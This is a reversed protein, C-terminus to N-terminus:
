VELPSIHKARHQKPVYIYGFNEKLLEEKFPSVDVKDLMLGSLIGAREIEGLFIAGRIRNDQLIIKKYANSTKSRVVIAETTGEDTVTDGFAILPLGFVEMSNMPIRGKYATDGGAMNTGAVTGQEYAIPWIPINKRGGALMAAETVDGAAYVDEVSTEMRPNVIIGVNTKIRTDRCLELRPKVGVAVVIISCPIEEGSELVVASVATGKRKIEVVRSSLVLRVGSRRINAAVIKGAEADLMSPLPRNALEVVTVKAGLAKLGEAAKIGIFGSGIVVAKQKKRVNKLLSDADALTTFTYVHPGDIGPIPPIVPEAGPTLLLKEYSIRENKETIILRERTKLSRVIGSLVTVKLKWYYEKPRLRIHEEDVRGELCYSILPRSYTERMERDIVLIPRESDHERIADIAAVAAISNGVIVYPYGNSKMESKM